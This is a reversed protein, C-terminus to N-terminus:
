SGEAIVRVLDSSDLYYCMGKNEGYIVDCCCKDLKTIEVVKLLSDKLLPKKGDHVGADPNIVQIVDGRRTEDALRTKIM